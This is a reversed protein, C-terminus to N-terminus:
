MTWADVWLIREQDKSRLSALACHLNVTVPFGHGELSIPMVNHPDGWVYSLAEFNPSDDLSVVSFSCCVDDSSIYGDEIHLSAVLHDIASAEIDKISESRKTRPCLPHLHLLRIESRGENLPTYTYTTKQAEM